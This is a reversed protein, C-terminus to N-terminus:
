SIDKSTPTSNEVLLKYESPNVGYQKKFCSRFYKLDNFGVKYTIESINLDSEVILEAAVKIRVNRIFENPSQNIISKLKRYLQSKSYELQRSLDVVGFKSDGLYQKIVRETRQLFENDKESLGEVVIATDGGSRHNATQQYFNSAMDRKQKMINALMLLLMQPSFPKTMYYDAGHHYGEIQSDTSSKVTLLIIAIHSTIENEKLESCLEYGNMIPMMVDSIIVDPLQAKAIDVGSRGNRAWLVSYEENLFSIVYNAIDPNDEVLLVVPQSADSEQVLDLDAEVLAGMTDPATEVLHTSGDASVSFHEKGKKFELLFKTYQGVESSVKIKGHHLDVLQRVISLGIGIGPISGDDTARYYRDFVKPIDEESIGIGSDSVELLYHSSSERLSVVVVSDDGSYKIANSILNSIIQEMKSEDYHMFASTLESELILSVNKARAILEFNTVIQRLFIVLDYERINMKINGTEIKSHNLIQNIYNKLREANSLMVNLMHKDLHKNGGSEIAQKEGQLPSIIMTLPTLLEHSINAVIRSKVKDIEKLKETEIQELRLESELNLRALTMKILQYLVGFSVLAYILWALWTNYWPELIRFEFEKATPNWVDDNNCGIVEFKYKGPSLNRYEAERKTSVYRWDKDLGILRVKFKNQEAQTFNLATYSFNIDNQDYSLEVPTHSKNQQIMSDLPTGSVYVETIYVPPAVNNQLQQEQKYYNIGSINGFYITGDSLSEISGKLFQSSLLGDALNYHKVKETKLHLSFVGKNTSAWLVTDGVFELSAIYPSPVGPLLSFDKIVKDGDSIYFLGKTTGLWMDCENDIKIDNISHSINTTVSNLLSTSQLLQYDTDLKIVQVGSEETGIIMVDDNCGTQMTTVRTSILDNKGFQKIQKGQDYIEIRDGFYAVWMKGLNDRTIAKIFDGDSNLTNHSQTELFFSKDSRPDYRIVGDKWTGVWLMGASDECLATVFKGKDGILNHCTYTGNRKDKSFLGKGDTGFWIKDDTELLSNVQDIEVKNNGCKIKQIQQFEDEKQDIKNLGKLHMGIWIIGTNDEYLSWISNGSIHNNLNSDSRYRTVSKDSKIYLGANETGVMLRGKSDHLISLIVTNELSDQLGDINLSQEKNLCLTKLGQNTGIVYCSDQYQEISRIPIGEDYLHKVVGSQVDVSIVGSSWSGLLINNGIGSISTIYQEELQSIYFSGSSFIREETELDMLSVGGKETAIWMVNKEDVYLDRIYNDSLANNTTSYNLYTDDKFNIKILGGGYTGVWLHDRDKDYYLSTISNVNGASVVARGLDFHEYVLGDFRNLGYRTGVWLYGKNDQVISTITSESLGSSVDHFVFPKQSIGLHSSGLLFVLVLFLLSFHPRRM